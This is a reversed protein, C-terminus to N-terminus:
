VISWCFDNLKAALAPAFCTWSYGKEEAVENVQWVM